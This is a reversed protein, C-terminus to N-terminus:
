ITTKQFHTLVDKYSVNHGNLLTEVSMLNDLVVQRDAPNYHDFPRSKIRHYSELKNSTVCEVDEDSYPVQLFELMKKLQTALDTLMDEYKIVLVSSINAQELWYHVLKTFEKANYHVFKRWVGFDGTLLCFMIKFTFGCYVTYLHNSLIKDALKKDM